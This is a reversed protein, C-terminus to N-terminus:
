PRYHGESTPRSLRAIVGHLDEPLPAEVTIRHPLDFAIKQAHLFMRRLGLARAYDNFNEDGYKQDGAVPHGFYQAHARIQHTRGTELTATVVCCHEFQTLVAFRTRAAKGSEDAQTRREATDRNYSDLAVDVEQVAPSPTGRLLTIYEKTFGHGALQQNLIRLTILGKALLLCGSTARDLRHVLDLREVEPRAARALEILGYQVGTGGHAALGAPKNVVIVAHDEYRVLREFQVRANAPPTNGPTPELHVPPIRVIDGQQVRAGAQARKGNIRVQGTRIIRYILTKPLSKLRASLFNDLRREAEEPAVEVNQVSTRPPNQLPMPLVLVRQPPIASVRRLSIYDARGPAKKAVANIASPWATLTSRLSLKDFRLLWERLHPVSVAGRYGVDTARSLVFRSNTPTVAGANNPVGGREDQNLVGSV